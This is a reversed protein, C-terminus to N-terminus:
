SSFFNSCPSGSITDKVISINSFASRTFITGLFIGSARSTEQLLISSSKTNDLYSARIEVTINERTCPKRNASGDEVILRLPGNNAFAFNRDIEPITIKVESVAKLYDENISGSKDWYVAHLLTGARAFLQGDGPSLANKSTSTTIMGTFTKSNRSTEKLSVGEFDSSNCLEDLCQMQHCPNSVIQIGLCETYAFTGDALRFPKCGPVDVLCQWGEGFLTVALDVTESLFPDTNLDADLVTVSVSEGPVFPIKRSSLIITGTESSTQRSATVNTPMPGNQIYFATVYDGRYVSRVPRYAERCIPWKLLMSETSNLPTTMVAGTFYGTHDGTETLIFGESVANAALYAVPAAQSLNLKNYSLYALDLDIVTITVADGASVLQQSIKVAAKETVKSTQAILLGDTQDTYVVQVIMGPTCGDLASANGIRSNIQLQGTFQGTSSGTEVLTVTRFNGTPVCLSPTSLICSSVNVITSYDSVDSWKSSSDPSSTRDLDFDNVTISLIGDPALLPFPNLTLKGRFQLQNSIENGFTSELKITCMSMPFADAYIV